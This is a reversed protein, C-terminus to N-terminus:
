KSEWLYCIGRLLPVFSALDSNNNKKRKKLSFINVSFFSPDSLQFFLDREEEVKGAGSKEKQKKV